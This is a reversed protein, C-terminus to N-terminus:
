TYSRRARIRLEGRLREALADPDSRLRDREAEEERREADDRAKAEDYPRRAARLIGLLDTTREAAGVLWEPAVVCRRLDRALGICAVLMRAGIERDCAALSVSRGDM